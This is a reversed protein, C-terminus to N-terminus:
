NLPAKIHWVVGYGDETTDVTGDVNHGNILFPSVGRTNQLAQFVLDTLVLTTRPDFVGTQYLVLPANYPSSHEPIHPSVPLLRRAQKLLAACRM